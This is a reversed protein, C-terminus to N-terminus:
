AVRRALLERAARVQHLFAAPHLRLGLVPVRLVLERGLVLENQRLADDVPNLALGHHGGDIEVTLEVDDWSCDLYVRGRATSRVVQRDPAPIGFGRCWRAFDLEGLSQAGDCVDRIVDDLLSRRASYGVQQWTQLLRAPAVLRQQVPMCILLAAQRDSRASQAARITAWEVRARPVGTPFAPPLRRRRTVRVGDLHTWSSRHHPVSVDIVEPTFGQLGHALLAAAGDLRADTGSEWVAQWWRGTAPLPGTRVAVTHRGRVSWRGAAVETRVDHRDIGLLHLQHRHTVGGQEDALGAVLAARARRDPRTRSAHAADTSPHDAM